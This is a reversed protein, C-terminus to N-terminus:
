RQRTKLLGNVLLFAPSPFACVCVSLCESESVSVGGDEPPTSDTPPGPFQHLAAALSRARKSDEEDLAGAEDGDQDDLVEM